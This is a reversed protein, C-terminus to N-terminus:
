DPHGPQSSMPVLRAVHDGGRLIPHCEETLELWVNEVRWPRYGPAVVEISHYGVTRVPQGLGVVNKGPEDTSSLREVNSKVSSEHELRITATANPPRGTTSDVVEIRLDECSDTHRGVCVRLGCLLGGYESLVAVVEIRRYGVITVTERAEHFDTAIIRIEWEGPGPAIMEFHGDGDPRAGVDVGVLSVSAHRVPRGDFTQVKGSIMYPTGDHKAQWAISRGLNRTNDQAYAGSASALAM